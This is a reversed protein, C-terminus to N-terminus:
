HLCLLLFTKRLLYYGAYGLFIGIFVKLRLQKYTDDVQEEPLPDIHKAPKLFNAMTFGGLISYKYLNYIIQLHNSSLKMMSKSLTLTLTIQFM